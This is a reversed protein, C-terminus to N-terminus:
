RENGLELRKKDLFRRSESVQDETLSHLVVAGDYGVRDLLHLYREYNLFGTGAADHGAEGDKSIDKAHAFVIHEGVLDFAEDLIADMRPLEGKHFLNAGDICVKLKPSAVTDIALKAKVASDIVNSVEPEFAVYVDHSEAIEAARAMSAIMQDWAEDSANGPHPRWLYDAMTGSCLTVVSTGLQHAHSALQELGRFGAERAAPDQDIMNFTGSLGSMEFGRADFASRIRGCLGDPIVEPIQDIGACSMHFQTATFGAGVMADLVDEVSERKYVTSFIGSIMSGGGVGYAGWGEGDCLDFQGCGAYMEGESM